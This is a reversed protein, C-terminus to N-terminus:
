FGGHIGPNDRGFDPPFNPFANTDKIDGSGYTDVMHEDAVSVSGSDVSYIELSFESGRGTALEASTGSGINTGPGNMFNDADLRYAFTGNPNAGM